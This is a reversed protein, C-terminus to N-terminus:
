AFPMRFFLCAGPGLADSCRRSERRVAKTREYRPGSGGGRGRRRRGGQLRKSCTDRSTDGDSSCCASNPLASQRNQGAAAVAAASHHRAAERFPEIPDYRTCVSEPTHLPSPTPSGLSAPTPRAPTPVRRCGGSGWLFGMRSLSQDVSHRRCAPQLCPRTMPRRGERSGEPGGEGMGFLFPRPAIAALM